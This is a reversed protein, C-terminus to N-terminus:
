ARLSALGAPRRPHCAQVVVVATFLRRAARVVMALAGAVLVTVVVTLVRFTRDTQLLQRLSPTVIPTSRMGSAETECTCPCSPGTHGAVPEDQVLQSGDSRQLCGRRSAEPQRRTADLAGQAIPLLFAILALVVVEILTFGGHLTRRM